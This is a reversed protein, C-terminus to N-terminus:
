APHRARDRHLLVRTLAPRNRRRVSRRTITILHQAACRSLARSVTEATVGLDRGIEARTMRLELADNAFGLAHYRDALDLLFSAM